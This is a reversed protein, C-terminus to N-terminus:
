FCMSDSVRSVFGRPPAASTKALDAILFVVTASLRWPAAFSDPSRTDSREKSEFFAIWSPRRGAAQHPRLRLHRAPGNRGFRTKPPQPAQALKIVFWGDCSNRVSRRCNSAARSPRSRSPPSSPRKAHSVHLSIVWVMPETMASPTAVPSNSAASGAAPPSTHTCPSSATKEMRLHNRLAGELRPGDISWIISKTMAPRDGRVPEATRLYDSPRDTMALTAFCDMPVAYVCYPNSETAESRAIVALDQASIPLSNALRPYILGSFVQMIVLRDVAWPRL